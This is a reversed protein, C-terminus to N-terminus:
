EAGYKKQWEKQRELDEATISTKRSTVAKRCDEMTIKRPKEANELLGKEEMDHLVIYQVDKCINKIDDASYGDTMRALQEYNVDSDIEYQQSLKGLYMKFLAIRDNQDPLEVYVRKEFRRIMAENLQWPKNTAGIFFLQLQSKGKTVLGDLERQFQNRVKITSEHEFQKSLIDDLEDMFIVVPKGSKALNRGKDFLEGVNREGAGVYRSMIDAADVELFTGGIERTVAAALLTKGCGPPGYFLIRSPFGGPFFNPKKTPLVLADKLARKAAENGIIDSFFVPPLESIIRSEFDFKEDDEGEAEEQIATTHTPSVRTEHIKEREQRYKEADTLGQGMPKKNILEQLKSDEAKSIFEEARAFAGTRQFEKGRKFLEEPKPIPAFGAPYTRNLSISPPTYAVSTKPIGLHRNDWFSKLVENIERMDAHSMFDTTHKKNKILNILEEAESDVDLGTDAGQLNKALHHYAFISVLRGVPNKDNSRSHWDKFETYYDGPFDTKACRVISDFVSRRRSLEVYLSSDKRCCYALMEYCALGVLVDYNSFGESTAAYKHKSIEDIWQLLRKKFDQFEEYSTKKKGFAL